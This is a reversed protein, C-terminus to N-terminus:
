ESSDTMSRKLNVDGLGLESYFRGHSSVNRLLLEIEQANVSAGIRMQLGINRIRDQLEVSTAAQYDTQAIRREQIDIDIKEDVVQASVTSGLSFVLSLSLAFERMVM